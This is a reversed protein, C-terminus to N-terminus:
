GWTASYSYVFCCVLVAVTYGVVLNDEEEEDIRYVLILTAAVSMSVMMGVAGLLLM